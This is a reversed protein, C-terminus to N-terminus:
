LKGAQRESHFTYHSFFGACLIKSCLMLECADALLFDGAFSFPSLVLALM